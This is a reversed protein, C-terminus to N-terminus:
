ACSSSSDGASGGPSHSWGNCFQDAAASSSFRITMTQKGRTLMVSTDKAKRGVPSGTVASDWTAGGTRAAADELTQVFASGLASAAWEIWRPWPLSAKLSSRMVGVMALAINGVLHGASTMPTRPLFVVRDSGLVAFGPQSNWGESCYATCVVPVSEWHDGTSPPLPLATFLLLGGWLEEIRQIAWMSITRGKGRAILTRTRVRIGINSLDLDKLAMQQLGRLRPKWLLRETTLWYRGTRSVLFVALIAPVIMYSM